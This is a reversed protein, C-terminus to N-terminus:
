IDKSIRELNDVSLGNIIMQNDLSGHSVFKDEIGLTIVKNDMNNKQLYELVISGFGGVVSNEELTIIPTKIKSLVNEDLPKISRVAIVGVKKKSKDKFNNALEIMRPGVALITLDEGESLVQWLGEEYTKENLSTISAGKPYRIAVPCNLKLAYNFALELDNESSPSLVKLNPIHSLYSIDFVGQHTKGDAGVLGARDICFIVPLNQLAVDHIIQDYARQMFTSYICVVPKLGGRALGSAFTVAYEEAIGVDYFNDPHLEEVSTLGTGDKMGATIAVIKNDSEIKSNLIEGLKKSFGNSGCSFDKGVGHYLDAREEARLVGKGKTTKVHLFVAKYNAVNKVRELINDMEKINNGDVVGVYKFGFKEIYNARNFIRKILGRIKKLFKTFISNGFIKKILNKGKVYSAKTSRKSLLNYFGNKNKSISMGNDNLIVILKKPKKQSSTLAELNLGNVFSGDGIVAVVFYDENLKDRAECLGLASSLSTGAHGTTFTDYESEESNPFGSLGGDKRISSFDKDRKTLIKHAYCQHGVDFILKDKPFDFVKHLAITTEVIGLNSSLHGGNDKVVSMIEDRIDDALIKSQEISLGKIDQPIQLNASNSM